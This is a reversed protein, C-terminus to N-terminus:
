GSAGRDVREQNLACRSIVMKPWATSSTISILRRSIRIYSVPESMQKIAVKDNSSGLLKTSGIHRSLGRARAPNATIPRNQTTRGSNVTSSDSQGHMSRAQDTRIPWTSATVLAIGRANSVFERRSTMIVKESRM